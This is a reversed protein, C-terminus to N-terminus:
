DSDGVCLLKVSVESLRVWREWLSDSNQSFESLTTNTLSTDTWSIDYRILKDNANDCAEWIFLVIWIKLKVIISYCTM